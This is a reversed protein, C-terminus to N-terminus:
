VRAHTGSVVKDESAHLLAELELERLTPGVQWHLNKCAISRDVELGPSRRRPTPSPTVTVSQRHSVATSLRVQVTSAATSPHPSGKDLGVREGAHTPTGNSVTLVGVLMAGLDLVVTEEGLTDGGGADAGAPDM